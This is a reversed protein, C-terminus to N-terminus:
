KETLHYNGCYPCKYCFLKLKSNRYEIEDIAFQAHYPTTYKKKSSCSRSFDDNDFLPSEGNVVKYKKKMIIM